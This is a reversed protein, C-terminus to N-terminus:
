QKILRKYINGKSTSVKMIYVGNPMNGLSINTQANLKQSSFVEKGQMDYVSLLAKDLNLQGFDVKFDGNSPNPSVNIKNSLTDLSTTPNPYIVLTFSTPVSAGVFDGNVTATAIVTFTVSTSFTPLPTGTLMGTSSLTMGTGSFPIIGSQMAFTYVADVGGGIATIKYPAYLVGVYGVPLMGSPSIIINLASPTPVATVTLIGNVLTFSYNAAAGGGLMIPYGGVGSVITATTSATPISTLVTVTEGLVFGSYMITLAPNSVGFIRTKNDATVTLPAKNVILQQTVDSAASFTANGAQSATIITTGAGVVTVTNGSITAVSTNSSAYSVFLGSSATANLTFSAVGYTVPTIPAFTITQTTLNNQAYVALFGAANASTFSLTAPSPDFDATGGFWGCVHIKNANDVFISRTIGGSSNTGSLLLAGLFAGNADLKSVYGNVGGSSATGVLNQTGANPDFDATGTFSGCTYVNNTADLAIGYAVEGGTGGLSKAWGYAGTTGNLKLVFADSGGASTINAVGADPNFDVTSEFSGTTYVDGAADLTIGFFARDEGFGGMTKAWVYNGASSLKAVGIDLNGSNANILTQVGANPDADISGSRYGMAYYINNTADTVVGYASDRDTGGITKVWIFNGVSSLKLIFIDADIGGGVPSVFQAVGTPNFNVTNEFVGIVIIDGNGDVTVSHALDNNGAGINRGFVFNGLTNLKVIFIDLVGNSSFNQTTANPDLDITGSFWGIAVVEGSATIKLTVNDWNFQKAWIFTGTANVKTIYGGGSTSNLSFTSAASADFDLTGSFIGATYINGAADVGVSRSDSTGVGLFPNVFQPTFNQAQLVCVLFYLLLISLISKKM